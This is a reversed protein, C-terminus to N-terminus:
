GSWTLDFVQGVSEKKYAKYGKVIFCKHLLKNDNVAKM